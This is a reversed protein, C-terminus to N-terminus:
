LRPLNLDENDLNCGSSIWQEIEDINFRIVGCIRYYPILGDSVMKYIKSKSMSLFHTLDIVSVYKNKM